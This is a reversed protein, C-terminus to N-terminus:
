LRCNVIETEIIANAGISELSDMVQVVESKKVMVKVSYWGELDLKSVTPSEFGPTVSEADKLGKEHINYELMSYHNAVLVGEIRRKIRMVREDNEMKKSSILTTEYSGIESFVKLNNDRLSDGTEVIDVIANALNLAIMIEVSGNMEICHVDVGNRKFYDHTMVPFSTAINMGKLSDLTDGPWEDKVAVCLRCQGYGLSLLQVVDGANREVLLDSGTIGLDVVGNQVLVPIDDARIFIFVIDYNTCTAYLNRGKARFKFGAKKLLEITPEMLRGKSPIAFKIRETESLNM